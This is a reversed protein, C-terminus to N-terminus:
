GKVRGLNYMKPVTSLMSALIKHRKYFFAKINVAYIRINMAITITLNSDYEVVAGPTENERLAIYKNYKFM